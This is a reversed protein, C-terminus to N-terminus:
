PRTAPQVPPKPQAAPKPEPAPKAECRVLPGGTSRAIESAPREWTFRAPADDLPSVVVMVPCKARRIRLRSRARVDVSGLVPVTSTIKGAMFESAVTEADKACVLTLRVAGELANARVTMGDEAIQPGIITVGGPHLAVAVRPTEGVDADGMTGRPPRGLHVRRLGTCLNITVALGQALEASFTHTGRSEAEDSAVSEPSNAFATGVAGVISSWAGERDVEIDGITKFEVDPARNPTFWLTVVHTDRDYALDVAGEITAAVSFRIYQQATFKGGAKSKSQDVWVWGNGAIHFSVHAGANTIECERIWLVGTVVDPRDTARLGNFMGRITACAKSSALESLMVRLDADGSAGRLPAIAPPAPPPPSPPTERKCGALMVLVLGVISTRRM